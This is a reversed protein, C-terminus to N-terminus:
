ARVTRDIFFWFFGFTIPESFHIKLTERVM